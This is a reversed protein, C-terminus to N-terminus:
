GVMGHKELRKKYQQLRREGRAQIKERNKKELDAIALKQAEADSIMQSKSSGFEPVKYNSIPGCRILHNERGYIDNCAGCRKFAPTILKTVNEPTTMEEFTDGVWFTWLTRREPLGVKGSTSDNVRKESSSFDVEWKEFGGSKMFKGLEDDCINTHLDSCRAPGILFKVGDKEAKKLQYPMVQSKHGDCQLMRYTGPIVTPRTVREWNEYLVDFTKTDVWAKPQFLVNVKPSYGEMEKLIKKSKPLCNNDINKNAFILTPKVIQEGEARVFMHLTGQRKTLDTKSGAVWCMGTNVDNVCHTGCDITQPHQDMAWRQPPPFLGYCFDNKWKAPITRSAM